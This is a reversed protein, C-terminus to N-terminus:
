EVSIIYYYVPQGGPIVTTEAGAFRGGLKECFRQADAEAVEQGSYITIFEPNLPAIAEGLTEVVEDTGAFSGVLAGDMLTLYEGAHIEYGDFESDRAAYTVQVTHVGAIAELFEEKLADPDSDPSLRMMASVGQPITKTPIM